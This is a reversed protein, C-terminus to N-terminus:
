EMPQQINHVGGAQIIYPETRQCKKGYRVWGRTKFGPKSLEYKYVTLENIQDLERQLANRLTEARSVHRDILKEIVEPTRRM